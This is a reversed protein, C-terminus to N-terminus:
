FSPLSKIVPVQRLRNALMVGVLLGIGGWIVHEKKM